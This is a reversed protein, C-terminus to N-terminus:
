LGVSLYCEIESSFDKITWDTWVGWINNIAEYILKTKYTNCKVAVKTDRCTSIASNLCFENIMVYCSM